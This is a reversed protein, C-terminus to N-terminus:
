CFDQIERQCEQEGEESAEREMNDLNRRFDQLCKIVYGGKTKVFVVEDWSKIGLAERM